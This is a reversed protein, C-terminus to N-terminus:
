CEREGVALDGDQGDVSIYSSSMEQCVNVLFSLHITVGGELELRQVVM